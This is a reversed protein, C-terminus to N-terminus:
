LSKLETETWQFHNWFIFANLLHERAIFVYFKASVELHEHRYLVSFKETELQDM